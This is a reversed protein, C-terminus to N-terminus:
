TSIANEIGCPLALDILKDLNRGFNALHWNRDDVEDVLSPLPEFCLNPETNPRGRQRRTKATVDNQLAIEDFNGIRQVVDPH